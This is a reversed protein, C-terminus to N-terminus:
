PGRGFLRYFRRGAEGVANEVADDFGSPLGALVLRALAIMVCLTILWGILVDSLFHAGMAIRTFSVVVAFALTAAAVASRWEKRVLFVLAFPWFASAAEGSVFSCNRQCQDSLWWVPSFVADGGFDLLTRPRARGWFAKLIGNVILWPGIGLTALVFLTARPKVLLRMTPLVFKAALPAVVAIGFGWEVLLGANRVAELLASERGPFRTEPDYFLRSVALDLGPVLVFVLSVLALLGLGAVLPRDLIERQFRAWAGTPPTSNTITDPM